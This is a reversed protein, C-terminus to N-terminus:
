PRVRVMQRFVGRPLVRIQDPGGPPFFNDRVLVWERGGERGWGIGVVEHGWSLGPKHPLRVVCGLLVPRGEGIEFRYAEMDFGGSEVKLDLGTGRAAVALAEVLEGPFAGALHMGDETYGAEDAFERM